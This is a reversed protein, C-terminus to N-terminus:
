SGRATGHTCAADCRIDLTPAAHDQQGAVVSMEPSDGGGTIHLAHHVTVTHPLVVHAGPALCITDGPRSASVAAQLTNYHNPGRLHAPAGVVLNNCRDHALRKLRQLCMHILACDAETIQTDMEAANRQSCANM